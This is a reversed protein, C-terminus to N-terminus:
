VNIINKLANLLNTGNPSGLGTCPDWGKKAKYGANNGSTIDHFAQSSASLHYLAPNVFGVPHGLQQNIIVILGAWLPAVASTGGFVAQQGDVLVQYGTAPDADGAVDPVGRGKNRSSDASPPVHATSQWDPLPFVSSVGGGTSSDSGENWVIEQTITQGSGYLKTGGCGIVHPSSAPFDAHVTGDNEGDTAGRDGAACCITVGLAAADQFARDMANMAQTTWQNEPAGWSISLVSPKNVQDHIATTIANLFGADTNPAFYVAIKVGPAVAGAVEIDLAVEGDPGNPDGTPQNTAGNVSVDILTPQAVGLSTFYQEIEAPDYGGGLEIIGICQNSVDVNQPFHYLSAIQSPTYSRTTQARHLETKEELIQFHPRVQPRNDLGVVAEIIGALNKPIHVAGTRGRYTFDPHKFHALQVKFAKSFASARGTLWVTGAAANVDQVSLENAAAFEKVKALDESNAGHAAIFEEHTLHQVPTFPPTSKKELFSTVSPRRVVITVSIEEDPHVEATQVANHVPKRESGSLQVYDSLRNEKEM